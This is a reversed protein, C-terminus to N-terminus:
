SGFGEYSLFIIGGGLLSVIVKPEPLLFIILKDGYNGGVNFIGSIIYAFLFGIDM